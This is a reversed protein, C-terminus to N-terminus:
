ILKFHNMIKYFGLGNQLTEQLHEHDRHHVEQRRADVLHHGVEEVPGPHDRHGVKRPYVNM